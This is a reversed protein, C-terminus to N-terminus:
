KLSSKYNNLQKISKKLQEDIEDLSNALDKKKKQDNLDAVDESCSELDMIIKDLEETQKEKSSGSAAVIKNATILYKSINVINGYMVGRWSTDADSHQTIDSLINMLEANFVDSDIEQADRKGMLDNIEQVKTSIYDREFAADKILVEKEGTDVTQQERSVFGTIIIPVCIIAVCIFLWLSFKLIATDREQKNLAKM